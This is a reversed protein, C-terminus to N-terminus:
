YIKKKGGHAFHHLEFSHGSVVSDLSICFAQNGYSMAPARSTRNVPSLQIQTILIPVYTITIAKMIKRLDGLEHLNKLLLAVQETQMLPPISSSRSAFSISAPEQRPLQMAKRLPTHVLRRASYSLAKRGLEGRWSETTSRDLLQSSEFPLSM